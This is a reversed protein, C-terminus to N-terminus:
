IQVSHRSFIRTNQVAIVAIKLIVTNLSVGSLYACLETLNQSPFSEMIGNSHKFKM